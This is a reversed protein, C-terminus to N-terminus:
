SEESTADDYRAALEAEAAAAGEEGSRPTTGRMSTHVRLGFRRMRPGAATPGSATPRAPDGVRTGNVRLSLKRAVPRTGAESSGADRAGPRNVRDAPLSM